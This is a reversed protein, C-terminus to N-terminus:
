TITNKLELMKLPNRITERERNFHEIEENIEMTNVKIGHLMTITAEKFNKGSFELIQTMEHTDGMSLRKRQSSTDNKQNKAYQSMKSQVRFVQFNPKM